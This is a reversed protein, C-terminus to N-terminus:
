DDLGLGFAAMAVRFLGAVMAAGAPLIAGIAICPYFFDTVYASIDFVNSAM